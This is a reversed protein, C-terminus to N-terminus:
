RCASVMEEGEWRNTQACPLALRVDDLVGDLDGNLRSVTVNIGGPDVSVLLLDTVGNALGVNGALLEKDGGLEPVVRVAGLVDEGGELGGELVETEVINVEVQHHTM